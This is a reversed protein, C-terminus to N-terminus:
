RHGLLLDPINIRMHEIFKRHGAPFAFKELQSEEVWHYRQAARLQPIMSKQQLTCTFCHLTVRYKTHYHTIVTVKGTLAIPFGTEELYERVVGEEPSEGEKLRGGPFEWLGGWIDGDKRQQIFIQRGVTLMATAMVITILPQKKGKIPRETVFNGQYAACKESIPCLGCQPSRPTCITGGFDMLAQNFDRAKGQPLLREAMACIEAHIGKSKLPKDIDFLRSFLREVNADVVAIDQNYAISAIASATYPGIGPLELLGEYSSPIEGGLTDVIYQAASHLNRARAYYGLGEWYKLIESNDAQAVAYINPFRKVWRLFYSVGREMQTQQLMVESLYVHYPDYGERWPLDRGHNHFWRLLANRLHDIDCEKLTM